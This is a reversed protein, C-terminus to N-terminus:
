DPIRFAHDSGRWAAAAGAVTIHIASRRFLWQSVPFAARLLSGRALFGALLRHVVRRAPHRSAVQFRRMPPPEPEGSCVGVPDRKQHPFPTCSLTLIGTEMMVPKRPDPLVVTM